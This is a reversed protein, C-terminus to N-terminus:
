CAEFGWTVLALLGVGTATGVLALWIGKPAIFPMAVLFVVAPVTVFLLLMLVAFLVKQLVGGTIGRMRHRSQCQACMRHFTTFEVVVWRTYLHHALISVATLLFSVLITRATHVNARWTFGIPAADCPQGCDACHLDASAFRQTMSRAFYEYAATKSPFMPVVERLPRGVEIFTDAQLNSVTAVM